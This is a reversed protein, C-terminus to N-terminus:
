LEIEFQEDLFSHVARGVQDIHQPGEVPYISEVRCRSTRCLTDIQEYLGAYSGRVLNLLFSCIPWCLFPVM